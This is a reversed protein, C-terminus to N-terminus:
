GTSSPPSSPAPNGAAAPISQPLSLAWELAGLSTTSGMLVSAVAEAFAQRQSRSAMSSSACFFVLSSEAEGWEEADITGRALAVDIPLQEFGDKGPALVYTLRKLDALLAPAHDEVNWEAADTQGFDRLLLSAIRPGVDAAYSTGKGYIAAKTAAIIRYNAQFIETSIPTHYAWILPIRKLIPRGPHAPDTQEVDQSRIPFVLNLAADIKM